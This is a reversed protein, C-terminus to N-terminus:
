PSTGFIAIGVGIVVLFLAPITAIGLYLPFRHIVLGISKKLVSGIELRAWPWGFKRGYTVGRARM